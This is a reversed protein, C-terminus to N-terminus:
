NEEKLADEVMAAVTASGGSDENLLRPCEGQVLSHLEELAARLKVNEDILKQMHQSVRDFVEQSASFSLFENLYKGGYYKTDSLIDYIENKLM